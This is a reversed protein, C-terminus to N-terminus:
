RGGQALATQGAFSLGTEVLVPRMGLRTSVRKAQFFFPAAPISLNLTPEAQAGAKRLCKWVMLWNWTIRGGRREM